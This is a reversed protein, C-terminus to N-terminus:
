YKYWIDGDSGGTPSGTSVTRTGNGNSYAGSTPNTIIDASGNFSIGNITRATQLTTATSSNGSFAGSFTTAVVTGTSPNFTLKSTSVKTATVTGDTITTFLPYFTANTTTDDAVTSGAGTLGSGDGSFSTATVVGTVNVGGANVNGTVNGTVNGSFSSATVIGSFNAGGSVDGILQSKTQSM